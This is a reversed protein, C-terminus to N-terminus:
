FCKCCFNYMTLVKVTKLVCNEAHLGMQYIHIVPLYPKM